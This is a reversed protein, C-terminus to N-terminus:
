PARKSTRLKVGNSRCSEIAPPSSSALTPSSACVCSYYGSRRRGIVQQTMQAHSGGGSADAEEESDEDDEDGEEESDSDSEGLIEARIKAWM